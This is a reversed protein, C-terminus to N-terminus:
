RGTLGAPGCVGVERRGASRGHDDGDAVVEAVVVAGAGRDQVPEVAQDRGADVQHVGVALGGPRSITCAISAASRVWPGPRDAGTAAATPATTRAM